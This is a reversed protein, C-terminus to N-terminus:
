SYPNNKAAPFAQYINDKQLTISEDLIKGMLLVAVPRNMRQKLQGVSQGASVRYEGGDWMRVMVSTDDAYDDVLAVVERKRKEDNLLFANDPDGMCYRPIV